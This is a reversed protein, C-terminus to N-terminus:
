VNFCFYLQKLSEPQFLGKINYDSTRRFPTEFGPCPSGLVTELSSEKFLDRQFSQEYKEQEHFEVRGKPRTTTQVM